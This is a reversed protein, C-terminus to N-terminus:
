KLLFVHMIYIDINFFDKVARDFDLIIAKRYIKGVSKEAAYVLIYKLIHCQIKHANRNNTDFRIVM